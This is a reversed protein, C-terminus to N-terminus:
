HNGLGDLDANVVVAPRQRQAGAILTPGAMSPDTPALAVLVAVGPTGAELQAARAAGAGAPGAGGNPGVAAGRRTAAIFSPSNVIRYSDPLTLPIDVGPKGMTMARRAGGPLIFFWQDTTPRFVAFDTAGTGAYDGPVPIDVGPQGLAVAERTGDSGLVYFTANSPRYVALDTNGNGSYDGPVPMDTTAGFSVVRPGHPGIIFWQATSPRFVAVETTSGGDYNGPVPIDGPQGLQIVEPGLTSRNIYWTGTTPRYVALDTKGDGDYDGPVPIDVGPQGFRFAAYQGSSEKVFWQATSSRYVVLDMKGDGDFDGQLPTDGTPAGFPVVMGGATSQQILWQGTGSRFVGVDTKKDGDYDALTAESTAPSRVHVGPISHGHIADAFTIGKGFLEGAVGAGFGGLGRDPNTYFTLGLNPGSASLPNYLMQAATDFLNMGLIGDIGPAVDLVYIPVNTFKIIGGDTRPVDLEPITFGPVDVSGGVGTVTISTTPNNLDLGLSQAMATSIVTLQSGTDFLFNQHMVTANSGVVTVDAQTSNPSSTIDNGPNAHNDPGYSTLAITVPDTTGLAAALTTSPDVFHLDPMAIVLGPAIDSFDLQVGQMDVLAAYGHPAGASPNLIPTGTISPLDPSGDPTGVFTQIGDTSASGPGFQFSFVPFGSSDFTLDAAHLGDALITGPQSVDGTVTGGIGDGSAGGPVKIPIPNGLFSNFIDQDDASFTVASSGTDFIGFATRTPDGYAQVSVIQDGFQDLTPDLPITLTPPATPLWRAEL